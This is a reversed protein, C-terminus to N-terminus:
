NPSNILTGFTKIEFHDLYLARMLDPNFINLWLYFDVQEPKNTSDNSKQILGKWKM